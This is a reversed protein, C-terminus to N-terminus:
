FITDSVKVEQGNEDIITVTVSEVNTTGTVEVEDVFSNEDSVTITVTPKSTEEEPNSEWVDSDDERLNEVNDSNSSAEIPADTPSSM